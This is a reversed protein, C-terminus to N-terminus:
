GKKVKGRRGEMRGEGSRGEGKREEQGMKEWGRVKESRGEGRGKREKGGRRGIRLDV